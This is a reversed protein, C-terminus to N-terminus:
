ESTCYELHQNEDRDGVKTLLPCMSSYIFANIKNCGKNGVNLHIIINYTCFYGTTEEQENRKILM